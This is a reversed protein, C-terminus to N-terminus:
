KNILLSFLENKLGIVNNELCNYFITKVGLKQPIVLNAKTNDIFICEEPKVDLVQFTKLFIYEQSKGSGIEASVAVFDFIDDWNNHHESIIKMRDAKNDTVIGVKYNKCKIECVLELMEFNIPTNIFSDYLVDIDINHRIACCIKDWIEEHKQKGTQLTANYKRYEIAFLNKDIGTASSVYNCISQSGSEDLTLVGDFDFLVAEIM